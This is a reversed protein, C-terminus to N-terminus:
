DKPLKGADLTLYIDVSTGSSVEKGAPPYTRYVKAETSDSSTKCDACIVASLELGVGILDNQAEDWTKGNLDPVNVPPEDGTDGKGIWLQIVSGKPILEGAKIPKGNYLQALVCSLGPKLIPKSTRLGYSELMQVAQRPSADILNPMSVRQPKFSTVYLYITRNHKVQTKPEPDQSVVVGPAKKADYVSDIITDRLGFNAAFESIDAIKVATFDPVEVYEGHDTTSDLWWFVVKVLIFISLLYIGFHMLFKRSKIFQWLNKLFGM